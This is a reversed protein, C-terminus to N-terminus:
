ESQDDEKGIYKRLLEEGTQTDTAILQDLSVREGKFSQLDELPGDCLGMLMKVGDAGTLKALDVVEGGLDAYALLGQETPMIGFRDLTATVDDDVAALFDDLGGESVVAVPVDPDEVAQTSAVKAARLLQRWLPASSDSLSLSIMIADSM